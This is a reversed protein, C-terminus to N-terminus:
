YLKFGKFPGLDPESDETRKGGAVGRLQDETLASKPATDDDNNKRITNTKPKKMIGSHIAPMSGVHARM